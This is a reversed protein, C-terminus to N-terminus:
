AKYNSVAWGFAIIPNTAMHNFIPIPSIFHNDERIPFTGLSGRAAVILSLILVIHGVVALLSFRIFKPAFTHILFTMLGCCLCSLLGLFLPYSNWLIELIALTDDDKFGFIFADIKTGHTRFYYFNVIGAFMFVFGLLFAYTSPIATTFNKTRKFFTILIGALTSSYCLTLYGLMAIGIVRMDLKFGMIWM